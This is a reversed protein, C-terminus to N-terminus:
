RIKNGLLKQGQQLHLVSILAIGSLICLKERDKEGSHEVIGSNDKKPDVVWGTGLRSCSCKGLAFVCEKM